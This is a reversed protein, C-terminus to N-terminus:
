VNRGAQHGEFVAELASRAAVCDGIAMIQPANRGATALQLENLLSDDPLSHTPAVLTDIGPIAESAGSTLDQVTLVRDAFGTVAKLPLIRVSRERLRQRWAFGSYINVQWGPTGGPVILTVQRGSDALWEVFGAIAWSGLTDQVAVSTGLVDPAALAREMTLADPLAAATATAGTAVVVADTGSALVDEATARKGFHMLVGAREAAARQYDLLLGFDRRKPMTTAWRLAGGPVEQAEWLVVEHGRGAATLAAEMGAPGGGIVAIRRHRESVAPLPLPWEAERGTAANSLCTIPLSLALFGACGQNCAICPRIEAERGETAKRVLAADAIHARAMGVM